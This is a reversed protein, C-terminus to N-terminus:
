SDYNKTLIVIFSVMYSVLMLYFGIKWLVIAWVSYNIYCGLIICLLFLIFSIRSLQSSHDPLTPLQKIVKIIYSVFVFIYRLLGILALYYFSSNISILLTVFSVFSADCEKDFFEGFMSTVNLQKALLGDLGDLMIFSLIIWVIISLDFKFLYLLPIHCVRFLTVANPILRKKNSIDFLFLYFHLLLIVFMYLFISQYYLSLLILISQIISNFKIWLELKNTNIM